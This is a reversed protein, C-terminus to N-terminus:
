RASGMATVMYANGITHMIAVIWLNGSLRYLTGFLLGIAFIAAFMPVALGLPAAFYYYHLPGFTYLINAGIIGPGAGYRRVLESQVLGRYVVEQYFGYFLYPVFVTALTTGVGAAAAREQLTEWLMFPFVINAIIVVQVLYSRETPTWDRWPRLGIQTFTVGVARVMALAAVLLLPLMVWLPVGSRGIGRLALRFVELLVAGALVRTGLSEDYVPAARPSDFQLLHGRLHINM